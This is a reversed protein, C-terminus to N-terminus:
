LLVHIADKVNVIPNISRLASKELDDLGVLEGFVGM